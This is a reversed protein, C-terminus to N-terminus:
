IHKTKWYVIFVQKIYCCKTFGVNLSFTIGLENPQGRIIFFLVGLVVIHSLSFILILVQLVVTADLVSYFTRGLLLYTLDLM